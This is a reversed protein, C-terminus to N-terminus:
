HKITVITSTGSCGGRSAQHMEIDKWLSSFGVVGVGVSLGHGPVIERLPSPLPLYRRTKASSRRMQYLTSRPSSSQM